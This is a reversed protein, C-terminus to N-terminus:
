SNEINQTGTNHCRWRTRSSPQVSKWIVHSQPAQISPFFASFAFSHFLITNFTYSLSPYQLSTESRECMYFNIDSKEIKDVNEWIELNKM